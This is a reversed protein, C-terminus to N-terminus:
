AALIIAEAEGLDLRQNLRTVAARDMVPCVRIWTARGIEEAGVRGPANAAVEDHVAQPICIENALRPLIELQGVRALAILASSDLVLIM